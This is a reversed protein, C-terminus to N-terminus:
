ALALKARALTAEASIVATEYDRKDIELLTEGQEFFGGARFAPAVNVVKGRVESM